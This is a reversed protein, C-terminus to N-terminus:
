ITPPGRAPPPAATLAAIHAAAIAQLAYALPQAPEASQRAMPPPAAVCVCLPCDMSNSGVESTSGDSAQVLLKMSGSSTCVLLIDQPQVLPSAAAVGLSLAFWALVLRTLITFHRLTRM